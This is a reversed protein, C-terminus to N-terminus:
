TSSQDDDAAQGTRALCRMGSLKLGPEAGNTKRGVFPHISQRQIKPVLRLARLNLSQLPLESLLQKKQAQRYDDFPARPCSRFSVRQAEPCSLQCGRNLQVIEGGWAIDEELSDLAPAHFIRWDFWLLEQLPFLGELGGSGFLQREEILTHCQLNSPAGAVVRFLLVGNVPKESLFSRGIARCIIDRAYARPLTLILGTGRQRLGVHSLSLYFANGDSCFGKM